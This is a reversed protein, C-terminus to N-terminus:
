VDSLGGPPMARSTLRQLLRDRADASSFRRTTLHISELGRVTSLMFGAQNLVEPWREDESVNIDLLPDVLEEAVSFIRLRVEHDLGIARDVCLGALRELSLCLRISGAVMGPEQQFKRVESIAYRGRGELTTLHSFGGLLEGAQLPGDLRAVIKEDDELLAAAVESILQRLQSQRFSKALAQSQEDNELILIEFANADAPWVHELGGRFGHNGWGANTETQTVDFQNIRVIM